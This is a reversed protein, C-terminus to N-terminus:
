VRSFMTLFGWFVLALTEQVTRLTSVRVKMITEVCTEVFEHPPLLSFLENGALQVSVDSRYGSTQYIGPFSILLSAQQWNIFTYRAGLGYVTVHM